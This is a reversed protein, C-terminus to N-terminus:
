NGFTNENQVLQLAQKIKKEVDPSVEKINQGVKISTNAQEFLYIMNSSYSDIKLTNDLLLYMKSDM